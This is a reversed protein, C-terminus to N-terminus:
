ADAPSQAPHAKRPARELVEAIARALHRQNFPKSLRVVERGPGEIGEGYGSAIIVPMGPRLREVAAILDTGTMSPMAQDTILLDIDDRMGLTELANAASDAEIVDHGLDELLAATNILVLTDDDVALITLRPVEPPHEEIDVPGARVADVQAIPLWLIATTGTDIASVLEFAGGIQQAMGHVMPLGLGTGKGVGKTTFFPEIARRLTEEDMGSGQDKVALRIYSGASLDPVAGAPVDERSASVLIAGGGPMADRANVILNLLAMELQNADARLAPLGLPLNTSIPWEPGISRQVLDSMGSLLRSVDVRDVKLDQRRAFALM